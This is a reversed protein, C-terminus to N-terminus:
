RSLRLNLLSLGIEKFADALSSSSDADFYRGGNGACNKMLTHVSSGDSVEFAITFVMIGEAKINTCLQATMTDTTSSDSTSHQYVDGQHNQMAADDVLEMGRTNAGDTMLVIAKKVSEDSASVGDAFPASSTISRWGWVLGTPIYTWGSANMNNLASLVTSKSSTLRTVEAVHSCQSSSSMLGPVGQTVYESDLVAMDSDRSGMCGWWKYNVTVEQQCSAKDKNKEKQCKKTNKTTTYTYEYDDPIDLNTEGRTTDSTGINVYDAFPIVSVKVLDSDNADMLSDVMDKASSKLSSIKSGSM